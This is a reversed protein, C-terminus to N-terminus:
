NQRLAKAAARKAKRRARWLLLGSALYLVVVTMVRGMSPDKYGIIFVGIGFTAMVACLIGLWTLYTSTNSM